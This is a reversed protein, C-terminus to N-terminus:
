FRFHRRLYEDASCRYSIRYLSEMPLFHLDDIGQAQDLSPLFGKRYAARSYGSDVLNATM